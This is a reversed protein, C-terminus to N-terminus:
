GKTQISLGRQREKIINTLISSMDSSAQFKRISEDPTKVVVCVKKSSELFEVLDKKSIMKREGIPHSAIRGEAVLSCLARRGIGLLRAAESLSYLKLEENSMKIEEM